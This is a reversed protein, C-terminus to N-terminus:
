LPTQVTRAACGASSSASARSRAVVTRKCTNDTPPCRMSALNASTFGHLPSDEQEHQHERARPRAGRLLRRPLHREMDQRQRKRGLRLFVVAWPDLPECGFSQAVRDPLLDFFHKIIM